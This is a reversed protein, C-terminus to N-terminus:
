PGQGDGGSKEMVTKGECDAEDAKYGDWYRGVM